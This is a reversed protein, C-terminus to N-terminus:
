FSVTTKRSIKQKATEYKGLFKELEERLADTFENPTVRVVLHDLEDSPSYSIFDCWKLGTVILSGHVQCKYDNPLGGERLYRIHTELKPCKIEIMGEDGILGDPSCGYRGCDSLCFGVERVEVDNEFAYWARAAPECDIGNQMDKSVYSDNLQYQDSYKESLLEDIYPMQSTSPKMAVASMIRHFQSSTPISKRVSWWQPSKQPFSDFVKM